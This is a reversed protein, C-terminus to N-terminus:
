SLIQLAFQMKSDFTFLVSFGSSYKQLKGTIFQNVTILTQLQIYALERFYALLMLHSTWTLFINAIINIM